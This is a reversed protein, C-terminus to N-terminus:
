VEQGVDVISNQAEHQVPGERHLVDQAACVDPWGDRGHRTGQGVQRCLRYLQRHGEAQPVSVCGDLQQRDVGAAAAAAAAALLLLLLLLRPTASPCCSVSSSRAAV